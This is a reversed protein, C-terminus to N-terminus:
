ATKPDTENGDDDDNGGLFPKVINEDVWPTTGLALGIRLPVAFRAVNVLAFASAGVKAQDDPNSLDPWGGTAQYYTIAALGGAGIWFVWEWLVYSIIGARGACKIQEMLNEKEGEEPLMCEEETKVGLKVLMSDMASLNQKDELKVPAPVELQESVMAVGIDEEKEAEPTRQFPSVLRTSVFNRVKGLVMQPAAHPAVITRQALGGPAPALFAAASSVLLFHFAVKM